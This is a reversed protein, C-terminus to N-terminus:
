QAAIALRPGAQLIRCAVNASAYTIQGGAITAEIRRTNPNLVVLDARQGPVLRGRDTLGMIEAPRTSIMEWAHAFSLVRADAIVWAAQMLAPIYYDSILACCHGDEILDMAAINGAQSGGRVINPAGMLVPEGAQQAARAAAISTPFECIHAGIGRYFARTEPDTDDHSGLKVGLARLDAAVRTLFAPIEPDARKAEMVIALLDDPAHGNQAAWTAFRAPKTEAMELAEPLHNNFVIYDLHYDRVVAVLAAHDRPMHTEFRLQIRIDTGLRHAIQRRAAMLAVAEDASRSGGEWSWSQAFWATTVGNAALEADAAQLAQRKDFPATPRPRIHREFGDGHLDVIGPLLWYGSLDIEHMAGDAHGFTTANIVLDCDELTSNLLCLAGTLRLNLPPM